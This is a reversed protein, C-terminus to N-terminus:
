NKWRFWWESLKCEGIEGRAKVAGLTEEQILDWCPSWCCCTSIKKKFISFLQKNIKPQAPTKTATHSIERTLHKENHHSRKKCLMPELAHALYNHGMPKTAGLRTSVEQVLSWVQTGQVLLHIRLWQAVLSARALQPKKFSSEVPYFESEKPWLNWGVRGREELCGVCVDWWKEYKGVGLEEGRNLGSGRGSISAVSLILVTALM